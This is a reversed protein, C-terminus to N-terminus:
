SVKRAFTMFGTHMIGITKPRTTRETQWERVINEVTKIYSFNLRKIKKTVSIVEEITPSYVVLWGGVKLSKYAHEIVKEPNKIDVTVLDVNKESIGKSADKNKIDIFDSLDFLEVNKEAIKLMRRDKEYSVVKGPKVHNALFIALFGSGTGVDVVFSGPSIGTYALILSADKPMIIQPGRRAKKELLDNFSPRVISFEKGLHTKIKEGFRKKLLENLDFIGDKTHLKGEKVETIYSSDESLLLVIEGVRLCIM